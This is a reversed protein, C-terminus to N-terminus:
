RSRFHQRDDFGALRVARRARPARSGALTPRQRPGRRGQGGVPTRRRRRRHHPLHGDAWRRDTFERRSCGPGAAGRGRRVPRAARVDPLQRATGAGAAGDAGRQRRRPFRDGRLARHPRAPRHRRHVTRRRLLRRGACVDGANRRQGIRRAGERHLQRLPTRARAGCAGAAGARRGQSGRDDRTARRVAAGPRLAGGPLRQRGVGGAERPRAAEPGPVHARPRTRHDPLRRRARNRRRLAARNRGDHPSARLHSPARPGM